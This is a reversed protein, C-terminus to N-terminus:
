HKLLAEVSTRTHNLVDPDAAIAQLVPAINGLGLARGSGQEEALIDVEANM